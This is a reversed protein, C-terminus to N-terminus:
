ATEGSGTEEETATERTTQGGDLEAQIEKLLALIEDLTAEGGGNLREAGEEYRRLMIQEKMDPNINPLLDLVTEDDLYDAEAMVMNVQEAQNSIRNRKFQPTAEINQLRLLQQVFEIVQYEFFDAEEDMTQYAANIQTATVTGAAVSQPDFAGFDRYISKEIRALYAERANYPPEQAYSTVSSNDTDAVAVHTLRIRDMFQQLDEDTMGGANGILWFLQATDTLDNAFGSQILDYSDIAARMGILTSEHRDNAYMPVIPLSGYNEEGIIEDGGAETHQVTVRYARLPEAEELALGAGGKSVYRAYGQETYLVATVPKKGWDLCWYRIGARLAGTWEDVLPVFETFPFVHLEDVNWFGYCRGHKMAMYALNYLRTDFKAGLKEKVGDADFDVGNGLSYTCRQVNLRRFFSSAIRNNSATFDETPVGAASYIRRVVENITVNKQADYADADLAIKYADSGRHEEIADRLFALMRGKEVAAEYDQYTYM